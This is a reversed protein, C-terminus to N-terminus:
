VVLPLSQAFVGAVGGVLSVTRLSRLGLPLHHSNECLKQRTITNRLKRADRV